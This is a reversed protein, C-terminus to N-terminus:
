LCFFLIAGSIFVQDCPAAWLVVRGQWHIIVSGSSGALTSHPHSLDLSGLSCSSQRSRSRPLLKPREGELVQLHGHHASGLLLLSAQTM